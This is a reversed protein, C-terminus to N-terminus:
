GEKETSLKPTAFNTVLPELIARLFLAFPYISPCISLPSISPPLPDSSIKVQKAIRAEGGGILAKAKEDELKALFAKKPNISAAASVSLARSAAFGIGKHQVFNRAVLGRSASLFM